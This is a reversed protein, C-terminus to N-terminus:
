LTLADECRRTPRYPLAEEPRRPLYTTDPLLASDTELTLELGDPDLFLELGPVDITRAITMLTLKDTAHTPHGFAFDIAVTDADLPPDVITINKQALKRNEWVFHREVPTVEMPIVEVLLCPHWTTEPIFSADWTVKAVASGGAPVSITDEGILQDPHWDEPYYFQTGVFNARYIRVTVEDYDAVSNNWVQAHVYNDQGRITDQHITGGDDNNRM